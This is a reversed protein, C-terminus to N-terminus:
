KGCDDYVYKLKSIDSRLKTKSKEIEKNLAQYKEAIKNQVEFSPCPVEAEKLEAISLMKLSAGLSLYKFFAEGEESCFFAQLFYPNIKNHDLELVILNGTALIEIDDEVNVVASKFTPAGTRSIIISNNKICYKKLKDPIYELYKKDISIGGDEIDSVSLSLYPTKKAYSLKDLESSRLQAGRYINKIISGLRIGDSFVPASCILKEPSLVYNSEELEDIRKTTSKEGDNSLLNLIENINEDSLINVRRTSQYIESADIFKVTKNNESIVLLSVKVSVNKFINCPLSIVAEIRGKEIFHKRIEYDNIRGLLGDPIVVVGKGGIKLQSITSTIYAWESSIRKVSKLKGETELELLQIQEESYEQNMALPGCMFIKDVMEESRYELPNGLVVSGSRNLFAKRIEAVENWSFNIEIGCFDFNCNNLFADIMFAGNGSFINCLKDGTQINLLNLALKNVSKSMILGCNRDDMLDNNFLIFSLLKETDFKREMKKAVDWLEDLHLSVIDEVRQPMIRYNRFDEKNELSAYLNSKLKYLICALVTGKLIRDGVIMARNMMNSIQCAVDTTDIDQLRLLTEKNM